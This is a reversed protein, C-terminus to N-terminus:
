ASIIKAEQNAREKPSSRTDMSVLRAVHAQGAPALGRHSHTAQQAVLSTPANATM